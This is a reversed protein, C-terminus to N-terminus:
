LKSQLGLKQLGQKIKDANKQFVVTNFQMAKMLNGQLKLKQQMFAQQPNLKGTATQVFIDDSMIFTTDAKGSDTEAISGKGNKLDVTWSTKKGDKNSVTFRFVCGLKKVFEEGETDINAKLESFIKGAVMSNGVESWDGSM